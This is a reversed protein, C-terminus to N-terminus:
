SPSPGVRPRHAQVMARGQSHFERWGDVEVIVTSPHYGADRPYPVGWYHQSLADLDAWDPDARMEVVWGRAIRRWLHSRSSRSKGSRYWDLAFSLSVPDTMQQSM